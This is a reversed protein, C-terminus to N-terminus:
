GHKRSYIKDRLINLDCFLLFFNIMNYVNITVNYRSIRTFYFNIKCLNLLMFFWLRHLKKPKKLRSIIILVHLINNIEAIKGTEKFQSTEHLSSFQGALRVYQQCLSLLAEYSLVASYIEYSLGINYIIRIWKLSDAFALSGALSPKRMIRFPMIVLM